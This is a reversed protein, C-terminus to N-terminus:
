RIRLSFCARTVLVFRYLPESVLADWSKCVLVLSLRTQLTQYWEAEYSASHEFAYDRGDLGRTEFENAAHRIIGKRLEIPLCIHLLREQAAM